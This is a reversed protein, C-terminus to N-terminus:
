AIIWPRLNCQVVPIRLLRNGLLTIAVLGWLTWTLLPFLLVGSGRGYITRSQEMLGHTSQTFIFFLLLYLLVLFYPRFLAAWVIVTGTITSGLAVMLLLGVAIALSHIEM